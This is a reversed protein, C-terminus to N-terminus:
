FWNDVFVWLCFCMSWVQFTKKCANEFWKTSGMCVIVKHMRFEEGRCAIALDAKEDDIYLAASPCTLHSCFFKLVVWLEDLTPDSGQDYSDMKFTNCSNNIDLNSSSKYIYLRFAVADLYSVLKYTYLLFTSLSSSSPSCLRMKYFGLIRKPYLLVGNARQKRTPSHIIEHVGGLIRNVYPASEFRISWVKEKVWM